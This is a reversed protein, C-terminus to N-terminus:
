LVSDSRKRKRNIFHLFVSRAPLDNYFFLNEFVAVFTCVYILDGFYIRCHVTCLIACRIVAM